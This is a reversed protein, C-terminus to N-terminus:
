KIDRKKKMVGIILEIIEAGKENKRM